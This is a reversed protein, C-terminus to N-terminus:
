ILHDTQNENYVHIGNHRLIQATIGEDPISKGSFTGDYIRSSGCSPSGDKLLAKRIKFIETLFLAERAGKIFAETCDEGERNLVKGRGSLIEYAKNQLECPIRPTSLGGAQEPCVPILTFEEALENLEPHKQHGGDYRCHLGLLCASILINEKM